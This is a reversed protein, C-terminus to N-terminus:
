PLVEALKRGLLEGRLNTAVIKGSPDILFNSPLASVKYAVAVPSDFAKLDSVQTWPLHDQRVAQVWADRVKDMSVGLITFNKDKYDDYAKLLNPNEQRCPGCWSAWFDVLVYKGKFSSLSVPKGESDDLTIDKSRTDGQGASLNINDGLQRVYDFQRLSPSLTGYLAVSTDPHIVHGRYMQNLALYSVWSDPHTRIFDGMVRDPPRQRLSLAHSLSDLEAQVLSGTIHVDHFDATHEIFGHEGEGIFVATSRLATRGTDLKMPRRYWNFVAKVAGDTMHGEFHYTNNRLLASDRINVGLTGEPYYNMYIYGQIVSDSHIKGDVQFHGVRVSAVSASSDYLKELEKNLGTEDLDMAVIKGQPDVLFNRPIASVGYEVAAVNAGGKLDSIQTWATKDQAVAKLWLERGLSGGDLSVGLIEFGKDKYQTYAPVLFRNEARCGHCWSAWFTVLVYKGRYASLSVPRGTSDPETFDPAPKGVAAVTMGKIRKGLEAIAGYGKLRPSLGTYLSAATDADIDNFMSVLTVFSIWSDPHQRIFDRQAAARNRGAERNQRTLAENDAQVPSGSVTFTNFRSQHVVRTTGPGVYFQAFGHFQRDHGQLWFLNAEIADEKELHGKFRYTNDHIYATDRGYGGEEHEYELCIYGKVATDSEIRGEIVFPKHQATLSLPLCIALFAQLINRQKTRM